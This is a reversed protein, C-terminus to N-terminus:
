ACSPTLYRKKVDSGCSVNLRSVPNDDRREDEGVLADNGSHHRDVLVVPQEAMQDAAM